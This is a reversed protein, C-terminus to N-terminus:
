HGANVDSIKEVFACENLAKLDRFLHVSYLVSSSIIIGWILLFVVRLAEGTKLGFHHHGLSVSPWKQHEPEAVM